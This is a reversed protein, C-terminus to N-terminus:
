QGRVEQDLGIGRHSYRERVASDVPKHTARRNARTTSTGCSALALLVLVLVVLSRVDFFFRTVYADGVINNSLTCWCRSRAVVLM